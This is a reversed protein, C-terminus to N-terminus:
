LEIPVRTIPVRTSTVNEAGPMAADMIPHVRAAGYIVWSATSAIIEPSIPRETSRRRLGELLVLRVQDIVTAEVFPEFQHQKSSLSQQAKQPYDCVALIIAQFASSCTGGFRVNRQGLLHLYSVRITEELLWHNDVDQVEM